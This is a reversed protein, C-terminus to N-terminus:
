VQAFLPLSTGQGQYFVGCVGTLGTGIAYTNVPVSPCQNESKEGVVGVFICLIVNRHPSREHAPPNHKSDSLNHDDAREVASLECYSSYTSNSDKPSFGLPHRNDIRDSNLPSPHYGDGEPEHPCHPPGKSLSSLVSRGAVARILRLSFATFLLFLVLVIGNAGPSVFPKLQNYRTGINTLAGSRCVRFEPFVRCHRIEVRQQFNLM